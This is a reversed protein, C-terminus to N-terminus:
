EERPNAPAEFRENVHEDALQGISKKVRRAHERLIALKAPEVTTTIRIRRPRGLKPRGVERPQPDGLEAISEESADVPPSCAPVSM